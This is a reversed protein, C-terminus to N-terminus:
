HQVPESQQRLMTGSDVTKGTEAITQFYLHDGAVEILMFCREKDFSKEMQASSYFDNKVLKGSNGLIFYNTDDGKPNVREYAHEHGSFVANVAYQRFLPVLRARLDLDPGHVKGDSYLPHHFYSIKWKSRSDRLAMELWTLQNPDMYTSDLVFFEIAGKQFTYYRDGGMNFPKYLRERNPDDHNGLSAYFKVGADLLLKYPKEFKQMFDKAQHGGYINDGLMIVFNFNIKQRYAEMQQALRYQDKAGTGSDGIVAFRVSESELPLVIPSVTADAHEQMGLAVANEKPLVTRAAKTLSPASLLALLLLLVRRCIM